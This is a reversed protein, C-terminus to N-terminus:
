LIDSLNQYLLGMNKVKENFTQAGESGWIIIVTIM